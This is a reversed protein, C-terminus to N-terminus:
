QMQRISEVAAFYADDPPGESVVSVSFIVFKYSVVLSTVSAHQRNLLVRFPKEGENAASFAISCAHVDGRSMPTPHIAKEKSAAVYQPGSKALIDCLFGDSIPREDFNPFPSIAIVMGDKFARIERLGAMIPDPATPYSFVKWGAPLTIKAGRGIDFAPGQLDICGQEPRCTYAPEAAVALTSMASLLLALLYRMVYFPMNMLIIEDSLIWCVM